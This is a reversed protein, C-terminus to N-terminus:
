IAATVSDVSTVKAKDSSNMGMGVCIRNVMGEWTTEGFMDCKTMVIGVPQGPAQMQRQVADALMSKGMGAAGWLLIGKRGKSETRGVYKLANEVDKQRGVMSAPADGDGNSPARGAGMSSSSHKPGEVQSRAGAAGQPTRVGSAWLFILCPAYPFPSAACM